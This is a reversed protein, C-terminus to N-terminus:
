EQWEQNAPQLLLENATRRANAKLRRTGLVSLNKHTKDLSDGPRIGGASHKFARNEIDTVLSTMNDFMPHDIFEYFFLCSRLLVFSNSVFDVVAEKSPGGM